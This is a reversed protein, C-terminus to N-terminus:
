TDPATKPDPMSILDTAHVDIGAPTSEFGTVRWLCQQCETRAQVAWTQSRTRWGQSQKDWASSGPVPGRGLASTGARSESALLAKTLPWSYAHVAYSPHDEKFVVGGCSRFM